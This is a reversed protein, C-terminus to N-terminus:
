MHGVLGLRFGFPEGTRSSPATFSSGDASDHHPDAGIVNLLDVYPELLLPGFTARARAQFHLRNTAPHRSPRDDGPDTVNAGPNIGVRARYDESVDNRYRRALLAGSAYAYVVGFSVFRAPAYVVLAKIEHRHDEPVYGARFRPAAMTPDVVREGATGTQESWTYAARLGLREGFQRRLSATAGLYRRYAATPNSFDLVTVPSGNRYPVTNVGGDWVRNTERIEPLGEIRRLLGDAAFRVGSPLEREVGLSYEWSKAFGVRERCPQGRDDFGTASCPRGLTHELGGGAFACDRTFAGTSDDWRCERSVQAGLAHQAAPLLDADARGHIGGRVLTRGDRTADWVAALQPLVATDGIENDLAASHSSLITVGPTLTLTDALTMADEVALSTSLSSAEAIRWGFRPEELRPDNSFFDTRRDPAGNNIKDIRDGPVSRQQTAQRARARGVVRLENLWWAASRLRLTAGTVIELGDLVRRERHDGNRLIVERSLSFDRSRLSPVHDCASGQRRCLFPDDELRTRQVGVRAWVGLTDSARYDWGLSSFVGSTEQVMRADPETRPVLSSEDIQAGDVITLSTLRHRVDLKASLALAAAFSERALPTPQSSSGFPDKLGEASDQEVVGVLRMHLRGPMLAGALEPMLTLRTLPGPGDVGAPTRPRSEYAAEAGGQLPEAAPALTLEIAGGPAHALAAGHGFSTVRTNAFLQLPLRGGDHHLGDVLVVTGSTTGGRLTPLASDAVVGAGPENHGVFDILSSRRESPLAEIFRRDYESAGDAGVPLERPPDQAYGTSAFSLFAIWTPVTLNKVAYRSSAVVRLKVFGFSLVRPARRRTRM